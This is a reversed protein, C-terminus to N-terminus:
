VIMFHYWDWYIFGIGNVATEELDGDGNQRRAVSVNELDAWGAWCAVPATRPVQSIEGPNPDLLEIGFHELFSMFIVITDYLFCNFIAM